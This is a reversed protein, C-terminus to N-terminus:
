CDNDLRKISKILDDIIEGIEEIRETAHKLEGKKSCSNANIGAAATVLTGYMDIYDQLLETLKCFEEEKENIINIYNM